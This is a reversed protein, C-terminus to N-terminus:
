ISNNKKFTIKRNATYNWFFGIGIAIVKGIMYHLGLVDVCIKLVGLNILLGIFSIFAFLGFQKAIQKNQDKFTITKQGIYGVVIGVCYSVTASLLYNLEVFETFIYLLAVDYITAIISIILYYILTENLRNIIPIKKLIKTIFFNIISM